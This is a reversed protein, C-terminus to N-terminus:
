GRRQAVGLRFLHKCVRLNPVRALGGGGTSSIGQPGWGGPWGREDVKKSNRLFVVLIWEMAVLHLFFEIVTATGSVELM